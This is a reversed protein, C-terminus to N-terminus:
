FDFSVEASAVDGFDNEQVPIYSEGDLQFDGREIVKKLVEANGNLIADMEVDTPNITVGLRLWLSNEAKM